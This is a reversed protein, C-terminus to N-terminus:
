NLFRNIFLVYLYIYVYILHDYKNVYRSTDRTLTEVITAGKGRMKGSNTVYLKGIPDCSTNRQQYWHVAVPHGRGSFMFILVLM